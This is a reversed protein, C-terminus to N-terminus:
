VTLPPTSPAVSTTPLGSAALITQDNVVTAGSVVAGVTVNVAGNSPAVTLPDTVSNASAVSLVATSWTSKRTFPVTTPVAVLAGYLKLQFEVAMGLPEAAMEACATSM